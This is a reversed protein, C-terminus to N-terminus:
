PVTCPSAIRVPNCRAPGGGPISVAYPGFSARPTMYDTSIYQAGSAFAAYRRTTDNARAELTGADARTRVLFGRRVMEQILAQDRLPENLTMYAALPSTEPVNVFLVRGELSRRGGQYLKAADGGADLAFLFRGRSASLMPWGRSMVAGRLSAADGQVDDPTVLREPPFVSRIEADLRDYAAETWPPAVPGQPAISPGQKPNITVLIPTHDRHADSWARLVRLCARLPQCSSRFDFDQMHLVKIGPTRLAAAEEATARRGVLKPGLPDAYRGAEPDLLPDLEITRAGRDLQASLPEHSYDLTIGGEPDREALLALEAPPIALKYSNHTGVAQIDNLRLDGNTRIRKCTSASASAAGSPNCTAAEGGARDEGAAASVLTMFCALAILGIMRM